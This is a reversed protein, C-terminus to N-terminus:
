KKRRNEEVATIGTFMRRIETGKTGGEKEGRKVEENSRDERYRRM